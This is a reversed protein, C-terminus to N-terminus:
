GDDSQMHSMASPGAITAPVSYELSSAYRITSYRKKRDCDYTEEVTVEYAKAKAAKEGVLGANPLNIETTASSSRRM